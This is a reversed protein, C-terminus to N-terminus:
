AEMAVPESAPEAAPSGFARLNHDAAGVYLSAAEPGWAVASAGQMWAYTHDLQETDSGLAVPQLRQGYASTGVRTQSPTNPQM